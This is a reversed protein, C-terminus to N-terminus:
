AGLKEAVVMMQETTPEWDFSIEVLRNEYCLLYRNLVSDSWHLQYAEVAGWPEADMPEYRDIFVTGDDFYEDQKADLLANKCFKYLFPTSCETVTYELSPITRDETLPWQNYDTSTLLFTTNQQQVRSWDVIPVDVLDEVGLPIKDDYVSIKWGGRDYTAVSERGGSLGIQIITFVMATMFIMSLVVVVGISVTRNVTRSVGKKRLYNRIMRTSFGIFIMVCIWIVAAWWWRVSSAINLLIVLLALSVIVWSATHNLKVGYFVGGDAALKAKHHWHLYTGIESITSISLLIWMLFMNLSSPRSLFEVPESHMQWSMFVLQYVCLALMLFQTPLVNKKMSRYITDVQTVPDTDIPTPNEAENYFIQMKGWQSALVWGQTSSFEEFMKQGETPGPDFESADPFYTVAFHLKKPEIRRFRWFLNGSKEVMWGKLAMDELHEQIAIHDCFSFRELTLKTQKM